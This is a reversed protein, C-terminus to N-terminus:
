QFFFRKATACTEDIDLARFLEHEAKEITRIQDAIQEPKEPVITYYFQLWNGDAAKLFSYKVVTEALNVSGTEM